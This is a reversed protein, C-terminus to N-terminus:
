KKNKERYEERRRDSEQVMKEYEPLQEATLLTRIRERGHQRVANMRPEIDKRINAYGEFTEDLVAKVADQQEQTLHLKDTMKILIHHQPTGKPNRPPLESNNARDYLNMSLAGGAFGIVFVALVILLAKMQSPTKGEM